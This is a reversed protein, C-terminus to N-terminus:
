GNCRPGVRAPAANKCNGITSQGSQGALGVSSRLCSQGNSFSRAARSNVGPIQALSKYHGDSHYRHGTEPGKRVHLLAHYSPVSWNLHFGPPHQYVRPM